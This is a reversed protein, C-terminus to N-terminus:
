RARGLRCVHRPGTRYVLADRELAGIRLAPARRRAVAARSATSSMDAVDTSCGPGIAAVHTPHARAMALFASYADGGSCPIWTVNPVILTHSLIDDRANVLDVAHLAHDCEEVLDPAYGVPLACYIPLFLEDKGPEQLVRRLAAPEVVPPCFIIHPEHEAEENSADECLRRGLQGHGSARREGACKLLRM